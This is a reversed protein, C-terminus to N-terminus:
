GVDSSASRLGEEYAANLVRTQEEAVVKLKPGLDAVKDPHYQKIQARYASKIQAVSADTSVGLVTWWEPQQLREEVVVDDAQAAHKDEVFQEEDSIGLVDDGTGEYWLSLFMQERALPVQLNTTTAAWIVISIPAAVCFAILKAGLTSADPPAALWSYKFAFSSVDTLWSPQVFRFLGIVALFVVLAGAFGYVGGWWFKWKSARDVWALYRDQVGATLLLLENGVEEYEAEVSDLHANIRKARPKREDFRNEDSSRRMLGAQDASLYTSEIENLLRREEGRLWVLQAREDDSFFEAADAIAPKRRGLLLCVVVGLAFFYQGVTVIVTLLATLIAVILGGVFLLLFGLGSQDSRARRTM